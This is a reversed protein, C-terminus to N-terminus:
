KKWKEEIQEKKKKKCKEVKRVKMQVNRIKKPYNWFKEERNEVSEKWCLYERETMSVFDLWEYEQFSDKKQM